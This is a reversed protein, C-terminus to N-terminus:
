MGVVCCHSVQWPVSAQSGTFISWEVSVAPHALQWLLAPATPLGLACMPVCRSQAVHWVYGSQLAIRKACAEM